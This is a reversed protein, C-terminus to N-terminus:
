VKHGRERTIDALSPRTTRGGTSSTYFYPMNDIGSLTDHIKLVLNSAFYYFLIGAVMYDFVEYWAGFLSQMKDRICPFTLVYNFGGFRRTISSLDISYATCSDYNTLVRYLIDIPLTLIGGISTLDPILDSFYPVILNQDTQDLVDQIANNANDIVSNGGGSVYQGGTLPCYDTIHENDEATEDNTLALSSLYIDSFAWGSGIPLAAHGDSDYLNSFNIQIYNYDTNTNYQNHLWANTRLPINKFSTFRYDGNLTNNEIYTSNNYSVQCNSYTDDTCYFVRVVPYICSTSGVTICASTDLNYSTYSLYLQTDDTDRKFRVAFNNQNAGSNTRSTQKLKLINTNYTSGDDASTSTDYIFEMAVQRTRWNLTSPDGLAINCGSSIDTSEIEYYGSIACEVYDTVSSESCNTPPNYELANVYLTCGFFAVCGIVIPILWKLIKKPTLSVGFHFRM